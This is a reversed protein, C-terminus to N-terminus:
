DLVIKKTIVALDSHINVFYVGKSANQMKITKTNSSNSIDHESILRGSIDYIVAKELNIYSAKNIYFQNKAPNPYLSITNNLEDEAVSLSCSHNTMLNSSCGADISISRSQVDNGGNIDDSSLTRNNQGAGISRHMIASSNIVHGLQHGHGLEHVAVSEFDTKPSVAPKTGYEWNTDDNFVIDLEDVIVYTTGTSSCTSPYTYCVGLTSAELESGVDFRIINTGDRQQSNVMTTAGIDWNVGTECRWTDFARLFSAKAAANADFDTFMQWTYGGSGNTDVHQTQYEFGGSLITIQAYPVTIFALGSFNSKNPTPEADEVQISGTGADGPVQVQVETNTWSVIQTDLATIQGSVSNADQFYVKGMTAGFDNGTITLVSYTGATITTPSVGTIEITPGKAKSASNAKPKFSKSALEKYNTKTKSTISTYFNDEIGKFSKFVNNVTNSQTNYKYFAQAGSYPNYKQLTSISNVLETKSDYLFFVGTEGPKVQLSPTVTEGMDGVWGGKTILEIQGPADGKFVKYVEITNSTFINTYDTNWFSKQAIVKGEVILQTNEIQDNLPMEILAGQAQLKSTFSLFFLMTFVISALTTKNM